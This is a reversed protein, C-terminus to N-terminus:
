GAASVMNPCYGHGRTYGMANSGGSVGRCILVLLIVLVIAVILWGIVATM